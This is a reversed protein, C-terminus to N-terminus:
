ATPPSSARSIGAPAAPATAWRAAARISSAPSQGRHFTLGNYFGQNVLKKFNECTIPAASEDLQIDIIGGDEMTIRVMIRSNSRKIPGRLHVAPSPTRRFM